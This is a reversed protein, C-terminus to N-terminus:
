CIVGGFKCFNFSQLMNKFLYCLNHLRRLITAYHIYQQQKLQQVIPAFDSSFCPKISFCSFVSFLACCGIMKSIRLWIKQVEPKDANAWTALSLLAKEEPIGALRSVKLMTDASPLNQGNKLKFIAPQSIGLEKALGYYSKLNCREIAKIAYDNFDNM